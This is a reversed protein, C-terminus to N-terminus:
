KRKVKKCRCQSHLVISKGWFAQPFRTYYRTYPCFLHHPTALYVEAAHYRGLLELM